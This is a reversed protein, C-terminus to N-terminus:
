LVDRYLFGVKNLYTEVLKVMSEFGRESIHFKMAVRFLQFASTWLDRYFKGNIIEDFKKDFCFFVLCLLKDVEEFENEKLEEGKWCKKLLNTIHISKNVM